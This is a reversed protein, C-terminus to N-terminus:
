RIAGLISLPRFRPHAKAGGGMGSHGAGLAAMEEEQKIDAILMEATPMFSVISAANELALRTSYLV